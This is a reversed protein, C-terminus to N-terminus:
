EVSLGRRAEENFAILKSMHSERNRVTLRIVEVTGAVSPGACEPGKGAGGPVEGPLDQHETVRVHLTSVV